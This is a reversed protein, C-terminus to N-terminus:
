LICANRFMQNVSQIQSLLLLFRINKWNECEKCPDRERLLELFLFINGMVKIFQIFPYKPTRIEKEKAHLTGYKGPHM